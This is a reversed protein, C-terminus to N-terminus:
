ITVVKTLEKNVSLLDVEFDLFQGEESFALKLRKVAKERVKKNGELRVKFNAFVICPNDCMPKELAYDFARSLSTTFLKPEEKDLVARAASSLSTGRFLMVPVYHSIEDKLVKYPLSTICPAFMDSLSTLRNSQKWRDLWTLHELVELNM